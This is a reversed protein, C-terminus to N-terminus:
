CGSRSQPKGFKRNLPCRSDKWSLALRRPASYHGNTVNVSNMHPLINLNSLATPQLVASCAHHDHTRNGIIDGSNKMSMIIGAASHGQPPSLRYRFHIGPLYLRLTPSVVKGDEHATHISIRYGSGAAARLAHGLRYLFLKVKLNVNTKPCLTGRSLV